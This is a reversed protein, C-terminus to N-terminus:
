LKTELWRGRKYRILIAIIRIIYDYILLSFVVGVGMAMPGSLIYAAPIRFGYMGLLTILLPTRTDGAGRLSGALTFNIAIGVQCIAVVRIFSVAYAIVEPDSVFISAIRGATLVYVVSLIFMASVAWFACLWGAKKANEKRNAGLNQGVLTAAAMGFGGNPIFSLSLVQMGVQYGSLVLTGYAVIFKAYALLGIQLVFQELAAPVALRIVQRARRSSWGFDQRSLKIRLRGSFLLAPGLIAAALYSLLTGTAAGKVGLAPLGLKGFILVYNLGIHILTAILGIFMPTRTDGAGRLAGSCIAMVALFILGFSLIRFYSVSLRFVDPEVEFLRLISPTLLAALIATVVSAALGLTLAMGLGLSAEEPRGAGINRAVIATVSIEIGFVLASITWFIMACFGVSALEATGLRGVMILDVTTALNQLLVALSIPWALSFIARRIPIDLLDSSSAVGKGPSQEKQIIVQDSQPM